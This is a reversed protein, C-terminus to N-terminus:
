TPGPHSPVALPMKHRGNKPSIGTKRESDMKSSLDAKKAVKSGGITGTCSVQPKWTPSLNAV